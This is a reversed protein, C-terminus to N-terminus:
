VVLLDTYDIKKSKLKKLLNELAKKNLKNKKNNVNLNYFYKYNKFLINFENIWNKKLFPPSFEFVMPINKALTKKAGMFVKPEHGQVDMYIVSNNKNFKKTYKDLIDSNVIQNKKNKEKVIRYDGSNTFKKIILKTKRNSLAINVLKIVDDLDNILINSMLIKFNKKVPEFVLANSFYKSKIAPICISGLHGGINIFTRKKNKILKLIKIAKFLTKEDFEEDIFLKKSNFDSKYLLLKRNKNISLNLGDKNNEVNYIASRIAKDLNKNNLNKKSLLIKKVVSEIIRYYRKKIYNM